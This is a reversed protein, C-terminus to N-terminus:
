GPCPIGGNEVMAPSRLWTISFEAGSAPGPNNEAAIIEYDSYEEEILMRVHKLIMGADVKMRSKRLVFHGTPLVQFEIEAAFEKVFKPNKALSLIVKLVDYGDQSIFYRGEWLEEAQVRAHSQLVFVPRGDLLEDELRSFVFKGRNKDSFPILDELNFSRRSQKEGEEAQVERKREADRKKEERRREEIERIYKRTIDRTAGKETVEARVIEESREKDTVRVTKLVRTVKKPKWTKDIETQVSVVSATWNKLEPYSRIREATKDLVANLGDDASAGAGLSVAPPGLCIAIMLLALLTRLTWSM